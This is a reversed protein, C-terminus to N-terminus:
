SPFASFPVLIDIGQFIGVFVLNFVEAAFGGGGDRGVRRGRGRWCVGRRRRRGRAWGLLLGLGGGFGGFGGADLGEAGVDIQLLRERQRGLLDFGDPAEAVGVVRVGDAGTDRDLGVLANRVGSALVRLEDQGQGALLAFRLRLLNAVLRALGAGVVGAGVDVEELPSEVRGGGRGGGGRGGDGGPGQGARVGRGDDEGMQGGVLHVAGVRLRVGGDRVM